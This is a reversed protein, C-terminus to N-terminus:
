ARARSGSSDRCFNLEKLSERIYGSKFQKEKNRAETRDRCEEIHLIKFPRRGKTSKTSGKNHDKIRKYPDKSFGTYLKGDKLSKLVYVYYKM